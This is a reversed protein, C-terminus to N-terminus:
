QKMSEVQNPMSKDFTVKGSAETLKLYLGIQGTRSFRLLWIRGNKETVILDDTNDNQVFIAKAMEATGADAAQLLTLFRAETTPVAHTFELRWQGALKYSKGWAGDPELPWNRGSAWFERGAGGVLEVKVQKPLFSRLFLRGKNHDARWTDEGIQEPKEQTHFLLEKKQDPKASAVRDYIVFIDPKLYVFQRIVERSKIASYSRTADGAAYVFDNSSQLSIAKALVKSNQGGHNYYTKGDPKYSWSTWFPPMPEEPEHILITNHAVSQCGFMHHHDTESRSGADLALFDHKYIVFSLEDYHQHNGQSAGFRFSAYTDEPRRGSWLTLLGFSSSYFYRAPSLPGPKVLSPDFGTSLFLLVPYTWHDYVRSEKPFTGLVDYMEKVTQPYSDKNFHINNAIHTYVSAIECHNDTHWVDGIGYTLAYGQGAEASMRFTLGEFFRHYNRMQEWRPTIDEGFASKWSLFFLHTAYPYANFAYVSTASALLGSGASIEDRYDLMNAFLKVGRRLMRSADQDAIGDGYLLVGMFYELSCSGYNGDKPGGTTRRFTFSGDPQDRKIYNHIPLILERREEPTLENYIIDWATLANIRTEATVDVWIQGKESLALVKHYLRLSAKAKDLYTKEGTIVYLLAARVAQLSGNFKVLDAARKGPQKTRIIGNNSREFREKMEIYPADDPMQALYTKMWQVEGPFLRARARILPIMESNFFLRPHDRRINKLYSEEKLLDSQSAFVGTGVVLIVSAILILKALRLMLLLLKM